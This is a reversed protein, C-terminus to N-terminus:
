KSWDAMCWREGMFHWNACLWCWYGPLGAGTLTWHGCCYRITWCYFSPFYFLLVNLKYSSWWSESILAPIQALYVYSFKFSHQVICNHECHAHAYGWCVDAHVPRMTFRSALQTTPSLKSVQSKKTCYDDGETYYGFLLYMYVTNNVVTCFQIQLLNPSVLCGCLVVVKSYIMSLKTSPVQNVPQKRLWFVGGCVYWPVHRALKRKTWFHKCFEGCFCNSLLYSRYIKICGLYQMIHLFICGAMSTM